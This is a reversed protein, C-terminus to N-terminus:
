LFDRRETKGRLRQVMAKVEQARDRPCILTAEGAHVVVLGTVGILATLRERSVVINDKSALAECQGLVVNGDPDAPFHNAMAPWSGVDDWAFEGRLMIINDAKEMIAYDVSIKELGAYEKALAEDFAPTWATPTIRKVMGALDPCHRRLAKHFARVSWVFMGSNWYFRGSALYKKATTRDPKEVFRRVRCLTVGGLVGIAPGAQIYGFGTSPSAPTMGITILMNSAAAHRLGARLTARFVGLGGIVHDATLVCLVGDSCTAKVLASGLACAAATDRGVPEGIVNEPPVNPVARRTAAVLGAGTIVLVREPPILGNLYDVTMALMPKKGVLALLQKPHAATSLPWFREGQGGALIVAYANQM